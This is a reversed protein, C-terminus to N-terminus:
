KNYVEQDENTEMGQFPQLDEFSKWYMGEVMRVSPQTRLNEPLMELEKIM